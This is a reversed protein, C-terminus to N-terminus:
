MDANFVLRMTVPSVRTISDLSALEQLKDIGTDLATDETSLMIMGNTTVLVKDDSLRMVFFSADLDTDTGLLNLTGYTDIIKAEGAALGDLEAMDLEATINASPANQFVFEAMRENRIDIMTELSALGLMISVTGDAGVSGTIDSFTHSEGDYDNKISGFSVNSLAPDLTWATAHGDAYSVTALTSLAVAAAFNKFKCM